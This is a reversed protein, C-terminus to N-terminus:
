VPADFVSIIAGPASCIPSTCAQFTLVPARTHVLVNAFEVLQPGTSAVPPPSTNLPPVWSRINRAKSAEVPLTNHCIWVCDPTIPWGDDKMTSPLCYMATCDPQPM